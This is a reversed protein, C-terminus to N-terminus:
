LNCIQFCTKLKEHKLVKMKEFSMMKWDTFNFLM